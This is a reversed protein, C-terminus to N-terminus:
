SANAHCTLMEILASVSMASHNKSIIEMVDLEELRDDLKLIDINSAAVRAFSQITDRPPM